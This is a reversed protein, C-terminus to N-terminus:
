HSSVEQLPNAGEGAYVIVNIGMAAAHPQIVTKIQEIEARSNRGPRVVCCVLRESYWPQPTVSGRPEWEQLLKEVIRLITDSGMVEAGIPSRGQLEESCNSEIAQQLRRTARYSSFEAWPAVDVWSSDDTALRCLELRRAFPWSDDGVKRRVYDDDSPALFGGIVHWGSNAMIERAIELAPLHRSHVPSFSGPLVLFALRNSRHGASTALAANVKSVNVAPAGMRKEYPQVM